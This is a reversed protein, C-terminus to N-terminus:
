TWSVKCMSSLDGVRGLIKGWELRTMRLEYLNNKDVRGRGLSVLRFGLTKMVAESQRTVALAYLKREKRLGFRHKYYDLLAWLMVRARKSGKITGADRVVVGSLYLRGSKRAEEGELVDQATLDTDRCQGQYFVDTFSEALAIVGWCACLEGVENTIAVFAKPDRLRWQEAVSGPVYENGYSGRTLDCAEALEEARCYTARYEPEEKLEDVFADPLAPDSEGRLWAVVVGVAGLGMLAGVIWFANWTRALGVVGTLVSFLTLSMSTGKTWGHRVRVLVGPRIRKWGM